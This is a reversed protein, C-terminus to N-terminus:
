RRRAREAADPGAPPLALVRRVAHRERRRGLPQSRSSGRADLRHPREPSRAGRRVRTLQDLQGLRGAVRPRDSRHRDDDATASRPQQADGARSPSAHLRGLSGARAPRRADRRQPCRARRGAPVRGLDRDGHEVQRDDAPVALVRGRQDLPQAAPRRRRGVGRGVVRPRRRVLDLAVSSSASSPTEVTNTASGSRAPGSSRSRNPAPRRPRRQASASYGSRRDSPRSRASWGTGASRAADDAAVRNQDVQPGSLRNSTTTQDVFLLVTASTPADLQGRGGAVVKASVVAHTQTALQAVAKSTTAQYDTRLSGTTLATAAAFDTDLHRYDYSLITAASTRAAALAASGGAADARKDGPPSPSWASAVLLAVLCVALVLILASRGVVSSTRRDSEPGPRRSRSVARDLETEHTM